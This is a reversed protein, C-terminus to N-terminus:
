IIRYKWSLIIRWPLAPYWWDREEILFIYLAIYLIWTYTKKFVICSNPTWCFTRKEWRYYSKISNSNDNSLVNKTKFLIMIIIRLTKVIKHLLKSRYSFCELKPFWTDFSAFHNTRAVWFTIGNYFKFKLQFEIQPKTM